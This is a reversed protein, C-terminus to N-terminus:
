HNIIKIMESQQKHTSIEVTGGIPFTVFPMTHGFNANAIIPISALEKKWDLMVRLLSPTMKTKHQFRGIVIGKVYSFDELQILSQLHRDFIQPAFEEDQEIFLITDEDLKPWYQTGQLSQLCPLHWWILRGKASWENIIWHGENLLFQRKEQDLYWEDDSWEKSPVIIFSDNDICCKRFYEISYEFGYKIAWSSFHPGSYGVLGTKQFIANSLVTIDSFWCLIKPNNKILEYDIYDLMQNASYGWVVSLIANVRPDAFAEHLDDVRSQVSSTLFKNTERVNKWFSVTFGQEELRKTASLLTDESLLVLSRAPAIVRIHDWKKLKSPFIAQM